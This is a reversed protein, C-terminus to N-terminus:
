VRRIHIVWVLGIKKVYLEVVQPNDVYAYRIRGTKLKFRVEYEKVPLHPILKRQDDLPMGNTDLVKPKKSM